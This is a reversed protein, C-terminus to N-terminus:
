SGEHNFNVLCLNPFRFYNSTVREALLEVLDISNMMNKFDDLFKDSMYSYRSKGMTLM